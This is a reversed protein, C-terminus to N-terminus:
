FKNDRKKIVLVPVSSHKFNKETNSGILLEYLDSTGHSGMVILDNENEKCITQIGDLTCDLKIIISIKLDNLFSKQSLQSMLDEARKRYLM